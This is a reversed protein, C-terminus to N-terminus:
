RPCYLKRLLAVDHDTIRATDMTDSMTDDATFPYLASDPFDDHALGLSHLLEHQAVLYVLRESGANSYVFVESHLGQRSKFHRSLGLERSGSEVSTGVLVRISYTGDSTKKLLTCGVQSNINAIASEIPKIDREEERYDAISVTLPIQKRPWVLGEPKRCSGLNVENGGVYSATTGEFTNETWCVGLLGEERHTLVGYVILGVAALAILAGVVATAITLRKSTSRV